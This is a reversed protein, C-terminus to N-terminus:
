RFFSLLPTAELFALVALPLALAPTLESRPIPAAAMRGQWKVAAEPAGGGYYALLSPASSPIGTAWAATRRLLAGAPTHYYAAWVCLAAVLFDFLGRAPNRFVPTM